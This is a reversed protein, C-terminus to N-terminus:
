ADVDLIGKRVALKILEARSHIGLKRRTNTRHMFRCLSPRTKLFLEHYYGGADECGSSAKLFGYM